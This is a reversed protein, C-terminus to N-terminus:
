LMYEVAFGGHFLMRNMSNEKNNSQKETAYLYVLLRGYKDFDGVQCYLLKKNNKLLEQMEKKTYEKDLDLSTGLVLELLKNRSRKACQLKQEREEMKIPLKIEPANIGHLRCKFTYITNHLYMAITCTDGDYIDLVKVYHNGQLSFEPVEGYGLSKLIELDM